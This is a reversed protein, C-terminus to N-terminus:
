ICHFVLHHNGGGLCDDVAERLPGDGSVTLEGHTGRYVLAKGAFLSEPMQRRILEAWISARLSAYEVNRMAQLLFFHQEDLQVTIDLRSTDKVQKTVLLRSESRVSRLLRRTGNSNSTTSTEDDNNSPTKTTKDSNTTTTTHPQPQLLLIIDLNSKSSLRPPPVVPISETTQNTDTNSAMGESTTETGNSSTEDDNASSQKNTMRTTALISNGRRIGLSNVLGSAATQFRAKLTNDGHHDSLSQNDTDVRNSFSSTMRNSVSRSLAINETTTEETTTTTAATEELPSANSPTVDLGIKRAVDPDMWPAASSPSMNPSDASDTPSVPTVSLTIDSTNLPHLESSSAAVNLSDSNSNSEIQATTTTTTTEENRAANMPSQALELTVSPRRDSPTVLQQIGESTM